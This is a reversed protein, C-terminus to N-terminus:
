GFMCGFYNNAFRTQPAGLNNVNVCISLLKEYSQKKPIFLDVFNITEFANAMQTVINSMIVM